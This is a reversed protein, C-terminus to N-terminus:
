GRKNHHIAGAIAAVKKLQEARSSEKPITAQNPEPFYRNIARSMLNMCIVLLVLFTFVIGMGVMMFKLGEVVLNVEM